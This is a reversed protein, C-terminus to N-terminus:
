VEEDSLFQKLQNIRFERGCIVTNLRLFFLNSLSDINVGSRELFSLVEKLRTVKGRSKAEVLLDVNPYVGGIKQQGNKCNTRFLFMQSKSGNQIFYGIVKQDSYLRIEGKKGEVSSDRKGHLVDCLLDPEKIIQIATKLRKEGSYKM